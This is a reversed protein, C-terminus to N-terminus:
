TSLIVVGGRNPILDESNEKKGEGWQRDSNDKLFEEFCWKERRKGEGDM